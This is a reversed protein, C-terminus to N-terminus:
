KCLWLGLKNNHTPVVLSRMCEPPLMVKDMTNWPLFITCPVYPQFYSQMNHEKIGRLGWHCYCRPNIAWWSLIDEGIIARWNRHWSAWSWLATATWTLMCESDSAGLYLLICHRHSGSINYSHSSRTCRHSNTHLCQLLLLNCQM